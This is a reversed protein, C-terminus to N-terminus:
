KWTNKEEAKAGEKVSPHAHMEAFGEGGETESTQPVEHVKPAVQSQSLDEM